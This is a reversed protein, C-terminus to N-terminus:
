LSHEVKACSRSQFENFITLCRVVFREKDTALVLVLAVNNYLAFTFSRDDISLTGAPPFSAVVLLSEIRSGHDSELFAASEQNAIELNLISRTDVNGQTVAITCVITSNMIYGDIVRRRFGLCFLRRMVCVADRDPSVVHVDIVAVDTCTIIVYNAIVICLIDMNPVAVKTCSMTSRDTTKGFVDLMYPEVIDVHVSCCCTDAHLCTDIAITCQTATALLVPLEGVEGHGLHLVWERDVAVVVLVVVAVRGYIFCICSSKITSGWGVGVNQKLVYLCRINAITVSDEQNTARLAM